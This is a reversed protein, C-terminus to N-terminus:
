THQSPILEGRRGLPPNRTIFAKGSLITSCSVSTTRTGPGYHRSGYWLLNIYSDTYEGTYGYASQSAGVTSTVMGYPDYARAYTIAGTNNTMQRVSGLADGLFYETTTNVQAIRDVSYIYTNTGDSLAQTLGTNLDMTFTITNGNVTEQLRDNLGNYAYTATTTANTFTKLRNASDYTYTNVGDNLLNGNDDWTYTVGNVDILRNADDYDYTTNSLLGSLQTAQTQRNGVSDYNYHYYDGTSYNAETLRNLPDYVYDITVPGSPFPSQTATSTATSTATFTPTDVATATPSPTPTDTPTATSTAATATPTRTSTPTPTKTPTKALPAFFHSAHYSVFRLAENLQPAPRLTVERKTFLEGNRYIEVLGGDGISVRFRNGEEFEAPIDDGHPVWGDGLAYTFIQIRGPAVEFLVQITGAAWLEQSRPETSSYLDASGPPPLIVSARQDAQATGAPFFTPDLASNGVSHRAAVVFEASGASPDLAVARVATTLFTEGGTVTGGGFDDIRTTNSSYQEVYLGIRGGQANYQYGSADLTSLLMSNVYITVTGNEDVRVGLQDGDQLDYPIVALGTFATMATIPM